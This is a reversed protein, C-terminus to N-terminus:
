STGIVWLLLSAGLTVILLGPAILKQKFSDAEQELRSKKAKSSTKKKETTPKPAAKEIPETEILLDDDINIKAM